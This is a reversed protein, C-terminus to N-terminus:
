HHDLSGLKSACFSWTELPRSNRDLLDWVGLCLQQWRPLSAGELTVTRSLAGSDFRGDAEQGLSPLVSLNKEEAKAGQWEWLPILM